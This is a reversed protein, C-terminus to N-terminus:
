YLFYISNFNKYFTDDKLIYFILKYYICINIYIITINKTLTYKKICGQQTKM